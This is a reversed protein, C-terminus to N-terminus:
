RAGGFCLVSTAIFGQGPLARVGALSSLTCCLAFLASSFRSEFVCHVSIAIFATPLCARSFCPPPDVGSRKLGGEGM